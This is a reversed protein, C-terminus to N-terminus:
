VLFVITKYVVLRLTLVTALVLLEIKLAFDDTDVIEVHDQLVHILM